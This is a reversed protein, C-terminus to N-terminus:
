PSDIPGAARLEASDVGAGPIGEKCALLMAVVKESGLLKMRAINRTPIQAADPFNAVAREVSRERIIHLMPLPSRNTFNEVDNALTGEFQYDPHFSAIQYIGDLNMAVLRQDAMDLFDNYARFDRLADPHILLTTEVSRDSELISFEAELDRLLEAETKAGSVSFRVRGESLERKAFPCLNLGVVVTDVWRRTAGVIQEHDM